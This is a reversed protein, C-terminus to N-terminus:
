EAPNAIFNLSRNDLKDSGMLFLTPVRMPSYSRLFRQGYEEETFPRNATTEDIVEFAVVAHKGQILGAFNGVPQAAMEGLIENERMLSYQPLRSNINFSTTDTQRGMAASYSALDTGRGNYREFLTAAKKADMADSRLNNYISQANFPLYDEYTDKVAIALLYTQKEDQFVPSVKGKSAESIWKIFRRSDSANGLQVSSAGVEAPLTRYGNEEANAAFDAANSNNSVFTRLNGSLEDLTAQSPDVTYSAVAYDYIKVPAKRNNVKFVQSVAQGNVSDTYVFANGVTAATLAGAIEDPSGVLTTWQDDYGQLGLSAVTAGGNILAAISDADLGPTVFAVTVNISDIATTSGLLKAVTYNDGAHSITAAQGVSATDLFAKLSRDSIHSLASNGNNIVFSGNAAIADMGPTGNLAVVANEVTNAGNARDAQSPAIPVYIYDVAYLPEDLKYENRRQNWLAQVDADSFEISDNPVATTEMVAYAVRRTSAIDDYLAKADLKNYTYLGQMLQGFKQEKLGSEISSEISTLGASIQNAIDQSIGYRAPDNMAEVVSHADPTELGLARSANAIFQAADPMQNDGYMLSQLESDTVTIGLLDYEREVLKNTVVQGLAQASIQDSTAGQSRGDESLQSIQNQYENYKVTVDGVKAVTDRSGFYTQGSTLFDGLIFALLAVIIIVFLLVSKNRIKELTAM